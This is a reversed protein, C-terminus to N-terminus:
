PRVPVDAAAAEAARARQFEDYDRYYDAEDYPM